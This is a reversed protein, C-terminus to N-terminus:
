FLISASAGIIVASDYDEETIPKAVEDDLNLSGTASLGGYFNLKFNDTTGYSIRAWLPISTDQGVGNPAQGDDDLRFRHFEYGGGIAAEWGGDLDWVLEMGITRSVQAPLRSTLRLDNTIQWEIAFVPFLRLSDELRTMVGVGAGLVLDPGAEFSAGVIGGGTFSDGFDAGSERSVQFIPGGFMTWDSSMNWNLIGAVSYTQVDDWPDPGGLSTDGSFNYTSWLVDFGIDLQLDRNIETNANVGAGIRTVEIDGGGDINTEFLHQAGGRLTFQVNKKATPVPGDNLQPQQALAVSGLFVASLASLVTNGRSWTM